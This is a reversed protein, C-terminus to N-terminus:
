FGYAELPEAGQVGPAMISEGIFITCISLETCFYTFEARLRVRLFPNKQAKFALKLGVLKQSNFGPCGAGPTHFRPVSRRHLDYCISFENCFLMHIKGGSKVRM